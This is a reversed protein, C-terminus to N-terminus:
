CEHALNRKIHITINKVPAMGLRLALLIRFSSSHKLILGFSTMFGALVMPLMNSVSLFNEWFDQMQNPKQEWLPRNTMWPSSSFQALSSSSEKLKYVGESADSQLSTFFQQTLTLNDHGHDDHGQLKLMWYGRPTILFNWPLLNGVGCLFFTFLSFRYGNKEKLISTLGQSNSPSSVRSRSRSSSGVTPLVPHTQDSREVFDLDLNNPPSTRPNLSLTQVVVEDQADDQLLTEDLPVSEPLPDLAASDTAAGEDPATPLFSGTSSSATAM